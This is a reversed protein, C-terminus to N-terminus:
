GARGFFSSLTCAVVCKEPEDPGFDNIRVEYFRDPTAMTSRYLM